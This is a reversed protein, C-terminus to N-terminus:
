LSTTPQDSTLIMHYHNSFLSWAQLEFSHARVFDFLLDQLLEERKRFYHEKLYTGATIIYAGPAGLRHLPAHPWDAMCHNEMPMATSLCLEVRRPYLRRCAAASRLCESPRRYDRPTFRGRCM